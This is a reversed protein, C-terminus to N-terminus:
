EETLKIITYDPYINEGQVRYDVYFINENYTLGYTSRIYELSEPYYGNSAYCYTIDRALATELAEYQKDASSRSVSGIGGFFLLFVIVFVGLSLLLRMDVSRRGTEFRHM